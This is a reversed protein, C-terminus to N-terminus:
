MTEQGTKKPAISTLKVEREREDVGYMTRLADVEQSKEQIAETTKRANERALQPIEYAHPHTDSDLM